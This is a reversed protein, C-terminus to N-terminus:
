VYKITGDPLVEFNSERKSNEYDELLELRLARVRNAHYIDGKILLRRECNELWEVMEKFLDEEFSM